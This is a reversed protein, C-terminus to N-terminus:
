FSARLAFMMCRLQEDHAGPGADHQRLLVDHPGCTAGWVSDVCARLCM